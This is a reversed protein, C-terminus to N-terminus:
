ALQLYHLHNKGIQSLIQTRTNHLSLCLQKILENLRSCKCRTPTKSKKSRGSCACCSDPNASNLMNKSLTEPDNALFMGLTSALRKIKPLTKTRTPELGQCSILFHPLDEPAQKCLPCTPNVSNQNFRARNAQLIYSGSLLKARFSAAVRSRSSCGGKPWIHHASHPNVDHLDMCSLSSKVAADAKLISVWHTVVSKKIFSKWEVKRWPALIASIIVSEIM